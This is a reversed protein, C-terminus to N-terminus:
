RALHRDFFQAIEGFADDAEPSPYTFYQAHSQGEFVHLDAEVGSQRLKRHARVTNSLLLDRTGSFLISPPFGHLDGYVPSLLPDKMDHDGAYLKVAAAILGDYTDLVNDLHENTYASDGTKTIDSAPTGIFLAAPLPSKLEKLKLVTSMTLGGGASTGFLAMKRPDHDKVLEQWVAVSDDLAAPFPFDPPMRYDVALVETKTYHAVMAAENICAEGSFFVFAGGHLNVLLRNRNEPKVEAPKVRFCSVGAVKTPTFTVDLQKCLDEAHKAGAFDVLKQVARWQDADKPAFSPDIRPPAAIARQMEPSVTNPVPISRAPVQHPPLAPEDAAVRATWILSVATLVIVIMKTSCSNRGGFKNKSM